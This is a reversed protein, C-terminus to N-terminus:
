AHEEVEYLDPVDLNNHELDDISRSAVDLAARHDGDAVLDSVTRLASIADDLKEAPVLEDALDEAAEQLAEEIAEREIEGVRNRREYELVQDRLKLITRKHRDHLRRLESAEDLLAQRDFRRMQLWEDVLGVVIMGYLVALAGTIWIM